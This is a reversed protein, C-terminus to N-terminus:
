AKCSTRQKEPKNKPRGQRFYNAQSKTLTKHYTRQNIFYLKCQTTSIWQQVGYDFRFLM